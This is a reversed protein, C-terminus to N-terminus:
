PTKLKQWAKEYEIIADGVDLQFEGRDLIEKPPYVTPNNRVAADLAQVATENPSAYGIETTILTAIDPRLLYDIFRYANDVNKAGKPIVMSDLWIFPGEKPYIYRIKPNEQSAIYAEGNWMVGIVVEKNLFAQKQADSAFLRVSPLLSAMTNYAATIQAPDTTNGSFGNLRLGVGLTERLDDSLMVLGKFEPRWLDKWSTVTAPDVRDADVGIATTGWLYPVSHANGPDYPKDLLKPDLNKFNPLRTRDIPTLMGEKRMRNVFYTSPFVIDYGGDTTLKIKAFMSENSDYTSYIVRIGTDKQFSALVADPMYESWNYVVVAAGDAVAAVPVLLALLILALTKM